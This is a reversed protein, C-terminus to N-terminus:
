LSRGKKEDSVKDFGMRRALAESQQKGEIYWPTARYAGYFKGFQGTFDEHHLHLWEFLPLQDTLVEEDYITSYPIEAYTLAMTVADDWPQNQDPAYVAIRPAKELIVADQNQSPSSIEELMEQASADTLIEYSVGRITCEKRLTENDAMLFSGGRFNLLWQVKQDRLLMWYAIGYAKLHNKQGDSDMPILLVSAQIGQVCLLFLLVAAKRQLSHYFREIFRSHYM